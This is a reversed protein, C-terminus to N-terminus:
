LPANMQFITVAACSTFRRGALKVEKKLLSDHFLPDDSIVKIFVAIPNSIQSAAVSLMHPM